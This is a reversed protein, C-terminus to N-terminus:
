HVGSDGDGMDEEVGDRGGGRGGGEMNSTITCSLQQERRNVVGLIDGVYRGIRGQVYVEAM